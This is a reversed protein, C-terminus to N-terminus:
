IPIMGTSAHFGRIAVSGAEVPCAIDSLRPRPDFQYIVVLVPSDDDGVSSFSVVLKMRM